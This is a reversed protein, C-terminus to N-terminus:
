SNKKENVKNGGNENNHEWMFLPGWSAFSLPESTASILPCLPAFFPGSHGLTLHPGWHCSSPWPHKLFLWPGDWRDQRPIVPLFWQWLWHIEAWLPLGPIMLIATRNFMKRILYYIDIFKSFCSIELYWWFYNNGSICRKLIGCNLSIVRYFWPTLHDMLPDRKKTWDVWKPCIQQDLFFQM